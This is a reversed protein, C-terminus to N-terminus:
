LAEIQEPSLDNRITAYKEPSVRLVLGALIQAATKSTTEIDPTNECHQNEPLQTM